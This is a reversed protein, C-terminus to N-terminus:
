NSSVDGVIFWDDALIDETSWLTVAAGVRFDEDIISPDMDLELDEADPVNFGAVFSEDVASYFIYSPAAYNRYLDSSDADFVCLTKLWIRRAVKKRERKCIDLAELITM